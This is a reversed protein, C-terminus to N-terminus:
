KTIAWFPDFNPREYWSVPAHRRLWTWEAHPYGGQQYHAPSVIDLTGPDTPSAIASM